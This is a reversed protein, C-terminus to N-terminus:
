CDNISSVFFMNGDDSYRGHFSHLLDDPRENCFSKITNGNCDNIIFIFGNDNQNIDDVFGIISEGNDHIDFLSLSIIITIVVIALLSYRDM